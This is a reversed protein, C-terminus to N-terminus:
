RPSKDSAPRDGPAPASSGASAPQPDQAATGSRLELGEIHVGAADLHDAQIQGDLPPVALRTQDDDNLQMWWAVMALPPLSLDVHSGSGELRAALTLPARQSAPTLQVSLDYRRDPGRELTGALHASADAAGHWRAKGALVLAQADNQAIRLDIGDLKMVGNVLRPTAAFELQIPQGGANRASLTLAFPRGPTLTGTRLAVDDLLMRNGRVLSGRDIDVGADIRPIPPVGDGPRGPLDGLWAQLADMDVRPSDIQLRSIVTPGGFLTRWPLALRGHAALLIPMSAGQANLTLGELELAPRPFLTPSAPSSLHLELGANRAQGQLMATFREPQLLVYVAMAAALAMALLLGAFGILILRLRRSMSM